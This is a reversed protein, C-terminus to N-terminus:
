ENNAQTMWTKRVSADSGFAMELKQYDGGTIKILKPNNICESYVEETMSGLGKNYSVDWGTSNFKEFEDKTYFIKTNKGKTCSYLPAILRHIRGDSFLEPWLSFLNLLLAFIANGDTDADTFVVIKGYNLNDPKKGIELGIITLLEFIEKNKLIEIPRMDRINLVKGKLAYGGTTKPNRVALLPSLASLGECLLLSRNEPNSDTAAIHNVIRVKNSAKQKKALAQKEALEKKYLISAICPDIIEPTNLISKSIKDFDISGIHSSVEAVSNTIREKSQSDYKLSPFKTIWSGFLLHQKIQNPLVDIKHKKTIHVRLNEIIKGLIYDVHSGGNKIYIGNVYSVFQYEEQTGSPAFILAINDQEYSVANPHFNKAIQKISKFQIKESNFTFNIKPYLISLNQFRDFLIDIHDQTFEDLGFRKLDPVFSVKTGRSSSQVVKHSIKEMNDSCTVTIKNTGDSTEGVFSTSLINTLVSGLGNAGVGIRTSDDFNSGARLTTWALLPKYQGNIKDVPIGRGDDSITIQTGDLTEDISLSINSAFKGDTRIYEDISNQFIEEIIKILAPVIKKSQYKYDIIGSQEECNCSGAYMQTRTLVHERDTLVKFEDSM